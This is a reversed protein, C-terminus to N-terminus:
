WIRKDCNLIEKQGGSGLCRISAKTEEENEGDLKPLNEAAGKELQAQLEELKALQDEIKEDM